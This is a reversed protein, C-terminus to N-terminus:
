NRCCARTRNPFGEDACRTAHFYPMLGTADLARDLGRRSKGTAVALMFGGAHLDKVTEAAGSFLATGDDRLLFHHRYRGVVKPYEAADVGPLIHAMADNLGLGIVLARRTMRRCPCDWTAAHKRCRHPLAAASDM